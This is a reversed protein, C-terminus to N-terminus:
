KKTLSQIILIWIPTFMIVSLIVGLWKIEEYEYYSVVMGVIASIFVSLLIIGTKNTNPDKDFLEDLM